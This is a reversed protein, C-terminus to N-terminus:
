RAIRRAIEDLFEGEREVRMGTELWFLPLPDLLRDCGESINLVDKQTTVAATAGRGAFEAAIHRLQNPSYRHHDGFEVFCAPEIGLRALTRRFSEPNGLGCFAGANSFPPPELPLRAGTAHEVWALPEVDALFVPAAPNWRKVEHAIAPALDSFASRTILVVGARALASLPERLRGLPLLEGGGFPNLADILVLDCDRELRAHQFGDDLLLSDIPFERILLSGTHYRDAGVGVPALRSRIFIQPEDGTRDAPVSAGPALLLCADPSSRGYGRTLIGPARGRAAFARALLLVCPTKGTGGATLNGIAVVPVPLRRAARLNRARDRAVGWKWLLSLAFGAAFWPQAARYRPVRAGHLARIEDLARATAGRRAQACALALRGTARAAEPDALLREVTPALDAPEAIEVWAGAARFDTAIGPFNEMHPGAIVPKAFLAPELVNHGGRQALTGGMFVVDAAAFLGGLEGVTDLLLVRCPRLGATRRTFPIAAAALKAAVVDFREPKRPALILALDPHRPALARFADIVIDDEDVDGPTTPATTSAAIWVASPRTAALFEIVPSDPAAPRAEFDYKLNGSVRVRDPPAGLVVFRGAIEETQALICDAQPLVARFFHRFRRYRPFARDSIRGNVIALAAGTRKAERFLNPWIETEAVVVVSPRLARLVRRVAFTYDLPAYFTGDALGRLRAEATSRGALTGTSVFLRSAPFQVRMRRLLEVCTLVEGVSVAHLWIAGPGTQRLSRPVFGFRQPLSSWYGRTGLSRFLLYLLLLPLAFAQLLRYLFYIGKRKM